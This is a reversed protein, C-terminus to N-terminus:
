RPIPAGEDRACATKKIATREEPVCEAADVHERADDCGCRLIPVLPLRHCPSTGPGFRAYHIAHGEPCAWFTRTQTPDDRKAGGGISDLEVAIPEPGADGPMYTVAIEIQRREKTDEREADLGFLWRFPM